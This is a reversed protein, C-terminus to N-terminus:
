TVPAVSWLRHRGSIGKLECDPHERWRLAKHAEAKEEDIDGKARDSCWIEAGEAMRVVRATYNVTAGFADEEQIHVPGIHIGARIKIRSDGTNTYLEIAFNLAEVATRFAVMLADGITKIEHGAYKEILERARTFHARRVENMEENGLEDGLATSGVVDTFALTMTAKASGAWQLFGQTRLEAVASVLGAELDRQADAARDMAPVSSPRIAAIREERDLLSVREGCVNCEIWDFGRERRRRAQVEAVPTGCEPNPCVFIRWRSLSEPLVRRLLHAHVYEEFQFRIEESAAQDFFLALEGRGEEIERLWLGCRGGVTAKYLAANKWMEQKTFIGSRSLRVALTTYLNLVPGEFRFVVAKGEPDPAEPWERTFQSPFVLHPGSDAPERLAIEHRLLEEVTAVLLLREQAKDRLREDQSMRFRGALADEEALSGLGDPEAKAANVMASAYADLTEPQLLVLNGFSLRRILGRSEVLGICTEFQIRLEEADAAEENTKRFTRFLDDVTSLLRGSEKEEVLFAKIRQFLQTSSVKPMAKWEIAGRIAEALV